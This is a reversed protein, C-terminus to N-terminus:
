VHRRRDVPAPALGAENELQDLLRRLDNVIYEPYVKRKGYGKGYGIHFRRSDWLERELWANRGEQRKSVYVDIMNWMLYLMSGAPWSDPDSGDTYGGLPESM